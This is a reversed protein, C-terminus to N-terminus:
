VKGRNMEKRVFMMDQVPVSTCELVLVTIPNDPAKAPLDVFRIQFSNQEFKVFKGTCLIQASKVKTRLGGIAWTRGPWFHVQVYLTNEKRTFNAFRSRISPCPDTGYITEGNQDMWEGVTNLIRISQDPISGDPKPGINLLYNGGDRACIILNRLIQQPTKWADDAKHYGWSENMTMCAEWARGGSEAKIIQEPTGFDEPLLSRDNVLIDPQLKRVMHNMKKSEWGEASLPWPYDYWLIDVKGYNTCLEGVQGHIYEAFRKRAAEDEICRVGDPHHWDMLSYYFGIRLGESRAAKVYEAVLDRGCARKPACYDTYRTNFLCFGEHHKTTMVMYKM